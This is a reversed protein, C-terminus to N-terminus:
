TIHQQYCCEGGWGVGSGLKSLYCCYLKVVAAHGKLAPIPVPLFGTKLPLCRLPIGFYFLPLCKLLCRDIAWVPVWKRIIFGYWKLQNSRNWCPWGDRFHVTIKPLHLLHCKLYIKNPFFKLAVHGRGSNWPWLFILIIVKDVLAM